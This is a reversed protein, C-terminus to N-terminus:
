FLSGSVDPFSILIEGYLGVLFGFVELGEGVGVHVAEEVQAMGEGHGFTIEVGPVFSKVSIIYQEWEAEM